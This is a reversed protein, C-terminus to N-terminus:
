LYLYSKYNLVLTIFELSIAEFSNYLHLSPPTVGLMEQFLLDVLCTAHTM